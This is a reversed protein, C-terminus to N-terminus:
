SEEEVDKAWSPLSIIEIDDSYGPWSKTSECMQYIILWEDIKQQATRLVDDDLEYVKVGYPSSSEVAIFVFKDAPYGLAHLGRQYWAAQYHYGYQWISKSFVKTTVNQTTKLDLIIGRSEVYADIRGKCAIGDIDWKISIERKAKSLFPSIKSHKKINEAIKEAAKFEANRIITKGPHREMADKRMNKGQTTRLDVDDALCAYELWFKEPELVLTHVVRGFQLAETPKRQFNRALQFHLPSKRFEKLASANIAECAIYDEFPVDYYLGNTKESLTM